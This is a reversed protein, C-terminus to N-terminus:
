AWPGIPQNWADDCSAKCRPCDDALSTNGNTCPTYRIFMARFNWKQRRMRADDGDKVDFDAIPPPYLKECRPICAFLDSARGTTATAM